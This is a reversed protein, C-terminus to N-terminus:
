LILELVVLAASPFRTDFLCISKKNTTGQKKHATILPPKMITDIHLLM